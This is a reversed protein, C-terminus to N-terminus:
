FGREYPDAVGHSVIDNLMSLIGHQTESTMGDVTVLPRGYVGDGCGEVVSHELMRLEDEASHLAEPTDTLLALMAEVGYCGWNSTAAAFVYDTSIRNAIGGGCSCQCEDGVPHYERVADEIAGFGIENGNDGIGVTLIDPDDVAREFLPAIGGENITYGTASHTVGERNPGLKETAIVAAPDYKELFDDAAGEEEPFTEFATANKRDLLQEYSVVNLGCAHACAKFPGRDLEDRRDETVLVPRAGLGLALGHALGVAGPPGDTEGKPLNPPSGTGTSILVTDGEEVTETLAEAIALSVPGGHHERSANYLEEMVSYNKEPNHHGKLPMEVSVLKDVNTGYPYLEHVM